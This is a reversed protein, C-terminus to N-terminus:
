PPAEAVNRGACPVDNQHAAPRRRDVRRQRGHHRNRGARVRARRARPRPHRDARGCAQEVRHRQLPRDPLVDHCRPQRDRVHHGRRGPRDEGRPGDPRLDRRGQRVRQVRDGRRASKQRRRRQPRRVVRRHRRRHGQLQRRERRLGAVPLRVEAPDRRDVHRGERRTSRRGRAKGDRDAQEQVGTRDGGLDSRDDELAGSTGASNTASVFVALSHGVDAKALTYTKATAGAIANCRTAAENNCRIWKYTYSTAGNSWSGTTATLTKGEYLSGQIAPAATNVPVNAKGAGFTAAAFAAACTAVIAISWTWRRVHRGERGRHIRQRSM